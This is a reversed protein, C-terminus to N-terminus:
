TRIDYSPLGKKFCNNIAWRTFENKVDERTKLDVHYINYLVTSLNDIEEHNLSCIRSPVLRSIKSSKQILNDFRTKLQSIKHNVLPIACNIRYYDKPTSKCNRPNDPTIDLNEIADICDKYITDYYDYINSRGAQIFVISDNIENAASIDDLQM